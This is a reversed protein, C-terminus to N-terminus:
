GPQVGLIRDIEARSLPGDSASAAVVLDAVLEIEDRLDTDQLEDDSGAAPGAAPPAASLADDPEGPDQMNELEQDPM